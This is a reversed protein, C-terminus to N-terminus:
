FGQYIFDAANYEPGYIGCIILFVFAALYIAWRVPLKQKAIYKRISFGKEHLYGVIFLIIVAFVVIGINAYGKMGGGNIDCIISKFSLIQSFGRFTSKFMSLAGSLDAARSFYRGFSVIILTRVIRFARFAFASEKIKLLERSKAYVKELLISVMIFLGNWLGFAVYKWEPGHWFGVLFYVIFMALFSPLRKGMYAGFLKRSGRGLKTFAKSLSLPYFVYDRMWTGMTIHWRRWFDEISKAFFPQSFNLELEIGLMQSVGRAIDMGGSFDAYIQVGYMLAALFLIPGSYEAHNGFLENVPLALREAIVLKKIIGWLVLQWGFCFREYDFDHGEYLQKALQGHRPIPGQIIQPFFSMFLMFKAPNRDAEIKGRYVDTMYAVAQLTYFSIGLPLLLNLTPIPKGAGILALIANANDAFFNHYKLFLLACIVVVVGLALIRRAARKNKDKYAKKEEKSLAAGADELYRKGKKLVGGILRGMFFTFLSTAALVLVLWKSNLFYFAISAALLVTWRYKKPAIFYVTCVAIIFGIFALSVMTM